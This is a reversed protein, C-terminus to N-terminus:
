KERCVPEPDCACGGPCERVAKHCGIAPSCAGTYVVLVKKRCSCGRKCHDTVTRTACTGNLADCRSVTRRYYDGNCRGQAPGSACRTRSTERTQCQGAVCRTTTRVLTDGICRADGGLALGRRCDNDTVCRAAAPSAFLGALLGILLLSFVAGPFRSSRDLRSTGPM